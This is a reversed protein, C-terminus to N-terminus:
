EGGGIETSSECEGSGEGGFAESSECRTLVFLPEGDVSEHVTIQDEDNKAKHHISCTGTSFCSGDLLSTQEASGQSANQASDQHINFLTQGPSGDQSGAGCCNMPGDQIQDGPGKLFQREFQIAHAKSFGEDQALFLGIRALSLFAEEDEGVSQDVDGFHDADQIQVISSPGSARGSQHLTQSQQLFNNGGTDTDQDVDADFDAEQSQMGSAVASTTQSISQSLNAHNNGSENDQFLDANVSATQTAGGSQDVNQDINAHNDGNVNVQTIECTLVVPNADSSERCTAHNNGNTNSQFLVCTNPADTPYTQDGEPSCEFTNQGAQALQVVVGTGATCNWAFGPCNPGAYNRAGRQIVVGTPDIGISRLYSKIRPVTSLDSVSPRESMSVGLAAATAAIQSEPAQAAASPLVAFIAIAALGLVLATARVLRYQRLNKM